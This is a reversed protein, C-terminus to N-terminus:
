IFRQGPKISIDGTDPHITRYSVKPKDDKDGDSIVLKDCIIELQPAGCFQIIYKNNDEEVTLSNIYHIDRVDGNKLEISKFNIFEINKVDGSYLEVNLRVNNSDLDFVISGVLADHFEYSTRDKM